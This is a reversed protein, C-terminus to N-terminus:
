LQAGTNRQNISLAGGKQIQRRMKALARDILADAASWSLGMSDAIRAVPLAEWFRLFIAQRERDDLCRLGDDVARGYQDAPVQVTTETILEEKLARMNIIEQWNM